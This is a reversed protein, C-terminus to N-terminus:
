GQYITWRIERPPPLPRDLDFRAAAWAKLAPLCYAQIAEPAKWWRRKM